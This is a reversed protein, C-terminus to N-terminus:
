EGLMENQGAPLAPATRDIWRGGNRPSRGKRKMDDSNDQPTGAFLHSPNVCPPNDCTHCVLLGEPIEGHEREYAYRHALRTSSKANFLGYGDSDRGHQWEWCGSDTIIVRRADFLQSLSMEKKVPAYFTRGLRAREYHMRCLGKCLVPRACNIASCNM